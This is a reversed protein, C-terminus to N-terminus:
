KDGDAGAGAQPGKTKPRSVPILPGFVLDAGQSDYSLSLHLQAVVRLAELYNLAEAPSGHKTAADLRKIAQDHVAEACHLPIEDPAVNAKEIDVALRMWVPDPPMPRSFLYQTVAASIIRAFPVGTREEEEVIRANLSEPLLVTKQVKAM